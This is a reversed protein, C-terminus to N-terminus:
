LKGEAFDRLAFMKERLREAEIQEKISLQQSERRKKQKQIQIKIDKEQYIVSKEIGLANLEKELMEDFVGDDAHQLYEVSVENFANILEAIRKQRFGYRRGLAILLMAVNDYVSLMAEQQVEQAVRECQKRTPTPIAKM